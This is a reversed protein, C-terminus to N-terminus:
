GMKVINNHRERLYRILRTTWVLKKRTVKPNKSFSYRSNESGTDMGFLCIKKAGFHRALFVSRDGDMFGGFNYLRGFPEAQTTGLPANFERAYKLAPINDGHAHIVVISGKRNALLLDEIKGDLDTVIIDPVLGNDIFFSTAGDAAISTGEPVEKLRELSPGAG